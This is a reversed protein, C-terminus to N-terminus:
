MNTGCVTERHPMCLNETHWPLMRETGYFCERQAMFVNETHWLYMSQTGCLRDTQKQTGYFREKHAVTVHCSRDAVSVIEPDRLSTGQTGCPWRQPRDPSRRPSRTFGIPLLLREVELKGRKQQLSRSEINLSNEMIECVEKPVHKPLNRVQKQTLFSPLESSSDHPLKCMDASLPTNILEMFIIHFLINEYIAQNIM